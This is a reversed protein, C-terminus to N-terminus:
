AENGRDDRNGHDQVMEAARLEIAERHRCILEGLAPASLYVTEGREDRLEIAGLDFEAPEPPDDRTGPLGPTVRVIGYLAFELPLELEVSAPRRTM